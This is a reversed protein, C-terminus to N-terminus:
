QFYESKLLSYYITDRRRNNAMLTHSRLIGEKVFGSKLLSNRAAKNLVDTKAEVRELRLTKFSYKLLLEKAQTNYGNGQFDRGLWTWGIEIRKDKESYNGFSTSGIIKGSIKEIIVFALRKHDIRDSVASDIWKKLVELNSLDSTFYCWMEPDQTLNSIEDFDERELPRLLIKENELKLSFDIM